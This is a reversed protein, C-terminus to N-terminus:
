NTPLTLHTYSVPIYYLVDEHVQGRNEIFGASAVASQLLAASMILCLLISSPNHGRIRLPGGVGKM